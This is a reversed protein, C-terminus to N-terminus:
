TMLGNRCILQHRCIYEVTMSSELPMLMKNLKLKICSFLTPTKCGSMGCSSAKANGMTTLVLLASAWASIYIVGDAYRVYTLYVEPKTIVCGHADVMAM